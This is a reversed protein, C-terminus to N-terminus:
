LALDWFTGAMQVQQNCCHAQKRRHRRPMCKQLLTLSPENTGHYPVASGGMPSGRVMSNVPFSHAFLLSFRPIFDNIIIIGTWNMLEM